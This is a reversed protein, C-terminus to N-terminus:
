QNVEYDFISSQQPLQGCQVCLGTGPNIFLSPCTCTICHKRAVPHEYGCTRCLEILVGTPTTRM